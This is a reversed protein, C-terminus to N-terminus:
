QKDYVSTTKEGPKGSPWSVATLVKGDSSLTMVSENYAKGDLMTTAKIKDKGEAKTSYTVGKPVTPGMPAGPTGDLKTDSSSKSQPFARHFMDGDVKIVMPAINDTSEKTEKWEGALGKGPGVRMWTQKTTFASGDPRTGSVTIMETKGDASIERHTTSLTTGNAKLITDYDNADAKTCSIMRDAMAPYDKGDCGFKYTFTGATLVFMSGDEKIKTISGTLKSKEQNLMWTGNWSNDAAFCPLAAACLCVVTLLTRTNRNM